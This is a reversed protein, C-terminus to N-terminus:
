TLRQEQWILIADESTAAFTLNAIRTFFPPPLREYALDDSGRASM